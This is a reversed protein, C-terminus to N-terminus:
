KVTIPVQFIAIRSKKTYTPAFLVGVAGPDYNLYGEYLGSATTGSDIVSTATLDAPNGFGDVLPSPSVPPGDYLLEFAYTSPGVYGAGGAWSISCFGGSSVSLPSSQFISAGSKGEVGIYTFDGWVGTVGEIDGAPIGFTTGNITISGVPIYLPPEVPPTAPPPVIRIGGGTGSFKVKGGLNSNSLKVSM